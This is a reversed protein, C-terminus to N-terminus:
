GQGVTEGIDDGALATAAAIMQALGPLAHNPVVIAIVPVRVKDGGNQRVACYVLRRCPGADEIEVGGDCYVEHVPGAEALPLARNPM